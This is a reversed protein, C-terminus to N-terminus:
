SKLHGNKRLSETLDVWKGDHPVYVRVLLRGYKGEKDRYTNVAVPTGAPMIGEVFETAAKGKTKHEEWAVNDIGSPRRRTEWTDYGYGRCETDNIYLKRGHDMDIRYSDGDVIRAVVGKYWYYFNEPTIPLVDISVLESM